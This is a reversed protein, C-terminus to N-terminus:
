ENRAMVVVAVAVAALSCAAVSAGPGAGGTIAPTCVPQDRGGVLVNDRFPLGPFPARNLIPLGSVPDIQISVEIEAGGYFAPDFCRVMATPYKCARFFNVCVSRCLMMSRQQDDCRPFNMWCLFNLYANQCDNNGTFRKVTLGDGGEWLQLDAPMGGSEILMRRSRVSAFVGAVWADKSGVTSNPFWAFEQPVCAPYTVVSACFPARTAFEAATICVGSDQGQIYCASARHVLLVSALALAM